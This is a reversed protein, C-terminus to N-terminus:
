QFFPCGAGRCQKNESHFSCRIREPLEMEVNLHEKAFAAAEVASLFSDRKCCRPGGQAAIAGLCTATMRNCLSWSEESLPNAGTVVSFFIGSSVAAGCSGWLGCIGGPVQSARNEVKALAKELSEGEYFSGGSNGYAALLAAAVLFHHEPGHMYIAPHEMIKQMIEIPNKSETDLCGQRIVEIGLGSHCQDCIYHGLLCRASSLIRKGCRSCEMELEGNLYELDAGCVLCAGEKRAM